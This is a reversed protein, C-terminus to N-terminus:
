PKLDIREKKHGSHLEPEEPPENLYAEDDFPVETPHYDNRIELTAQTPFIRVCRKSRPFLRQQIRKNIDTERNLIELTGDFFGIEIGWLMYQSNLRNYVGLLSVVTNFVDRVTVGERNEIQFIDEAIHKSPKRTFRRIKLMALDKPTLKRYNDIQM